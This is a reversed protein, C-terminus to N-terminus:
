TRGTIQATSTETSVNVIDIRFETDIVAPMAAGHRGIIMQVPNV